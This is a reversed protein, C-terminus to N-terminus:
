THKENVFDIGVLINVFDVNIAVLSTTGLLEERAEPFNGEVEFYLFLKM